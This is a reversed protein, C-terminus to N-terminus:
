AADGEITCGCDALYPDAALSAPVQSVGEPIHVPPLSRSTTLFIDCPARITVLEDGPEIIEALNRALEIQAELQQLRNRARLSAYDEIM